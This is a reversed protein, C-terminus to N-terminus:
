CCKNSKEPFLPRSQALDVGNMRDKRVETGDLPLLRELMYEFLLSVNEGTKSSTEFYPVNKSLLSINNISRTFNIAEESTVERTAPTVVDSKTGVVVKLCTEKEEVGELLPLFRISLAEFSVQSTMDFCLIAASAGRCYFSSLGSFREEGATDWIAVNYPGWQKLSFSAGITSITDQFNGYIYRYVLTTKGVSAEGLLVVKLDAKRKSKYEVTM